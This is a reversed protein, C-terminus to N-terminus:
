QQKLKEQAASAFTQEQPSTTHATERTTVPELLSANPLKPKTARTTAPLSHFVINKGLKVAKWTRSAAPSSFIDSVQSEGIEKVPSISRSVSRSAPTVILSAPSAESADRLLSRATSAKTPELLRSRLSDTHSSM